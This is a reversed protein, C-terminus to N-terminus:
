RTREDHGQSEKCAWVEHIQSKWQGDCSLRYIGAQAEAEMKLHPLLGVLVEVAATPAM